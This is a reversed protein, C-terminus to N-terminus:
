FKRGCTPCKKPSPSVSEGLTTRCDFIKLEDLLKQDDLSHIMLNEGSELYEKLKQLETKKVNM